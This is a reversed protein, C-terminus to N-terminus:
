SKKKLKRKTIKKRNRKPLFPRIDAIEGHKKAEEFMKDYDLKIYEKKLYPMDLLAQLCNSHCDKLHQGSKCPCKPNNKYTEDIRMKLLLLVVNIDVSELVIFYVEKLNTENRYKEIGEDGHAYAPLPAEPHIANYSHWFLKPILLKEVFGLVTPDCKFKKLVDLPPGLCLTHDPNVHFDVVRPIRGGIEKVAPPVLHYRDPIIIKVWYSDTIQEGAFVATFELNGVLFFSASDCKLDLDYRHEKLQAVEKLLLGLKEDSVAV